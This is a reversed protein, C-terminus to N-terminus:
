TSRTVTAHGGVAPTLNEFGVDVSNVSFGSAIGHDNNLQFRRLYANDRTLGTAITQCAVSNLPTIANSLSQTLPISGEPADGIRVPNSVSDGAEGSTGLSQAFAPAALVALALATLASGWLKKM